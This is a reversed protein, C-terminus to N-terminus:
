ADFSEDQDMVPEFDDKTELDLLEVVDMTLKEDIQVAHVAMFLSSSFLLLGM